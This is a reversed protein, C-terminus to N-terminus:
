LPDSAFATLLEEPVAIGVFIGNGDAGLRIGLQDWEGIQLCRAHVGGVEIAFRYDLQHHLRIQESSWRARFLLARAGVTTQAVRKAPPPAAKAHSGPLEPRVARGLRAVGVAPVEHIARGAP